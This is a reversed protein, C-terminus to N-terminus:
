KLLALKTLITEVEDKKNTGILLKHGDKFVLQIGINGSVNYAKGSFGYRIGWGGFERIPKYQRVEIKELQNWSITIFSFHLPFFRVEIGKENIRTELVFFFLSITVFVIVFVGFWLGLNTPYSILENITMFGAFGNVAIIILWFWWQNFKQREKFLYEM